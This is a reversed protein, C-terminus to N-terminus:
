MGALAQLVFAVCVLVGIWMVFAYSQVFGGHLRQPASSLIGPIKGVGDVAADVVYKDFLESLYALGKLPFVVLFMFIEDFYLKGYSARYLPGFQRALTQPVDTKDVYLVKALFWGAVGIVISLGMMLFNMGHEGEPIGTTHHFTGGFLHTPGVALGIGLAAIALIRLPWAMAPPADHPHHGAEEPFREPGHFTMYYARFTYFATLFATFLAIGLIVAFFMRHEGHTAGSFLAALIEDKSWFGALPPIGALAAAGCLFTWHTIPLAHKLGSFRRMDIVDGMSHMVSGSALFLLAKFYAHTFLHFMAAMVAFGVFEKGAAGAGLAMFMYGLQSVTSYAMVRKLDTQTLATIAAILATIAGVAAVVMQATPALMFLPTSRAVLYVGATVMTAAHILASVPTPGEMADPLWVHLPFQASKGMAGVFLLLCITTILQPDTMALTQLRDANFVEDFRLSGFTTWILFIGLILGFDGIRNIVFAKKAAAAASPKRFWFGILLYSCVGVAEWFVFLMLYSSSLVLMCMSFVFGSVAAFFRPYGPDHHMYGSGFIAVLLSVGTVMALMIGTMADARLEIPVHVSGVDLWNYGVAVVPGSLVHEAHEGAHAWTKPLIDFLLILSCVFSVAIAAACPLHSKYKWILKGTLALLLAAALPAGPILWLILDRTSESM